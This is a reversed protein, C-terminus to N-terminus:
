KQICQLYQAQKSQYAAKLAKLEQKTLEHEMIERELNQEITDCQLKLNAAPILCVCILVITQFIKKM